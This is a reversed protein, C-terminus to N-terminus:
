LRFVPLLPPGARSRTGVTSAVFALEGIVPAAVLWAARRPSAGLALAAGIAVVATEAVALCMVAADGMDHGAMVSHAATVAGALALLAALIVLRRRQRRLLRNLAVFM